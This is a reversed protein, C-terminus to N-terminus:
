LSSLTTSGCDDISSWKVWSSLGLPQLKKLRSSPCSQFSKVATGLCRGPPWWPPPFLSKIEQKGVVSLLHLNLVSFNNQHMFFSKWWSFQVLVTLFPSLVFHVTLGQLNELGVQSCIQAVQDSCVKSPPSQVVARKLDRGFQIIRHNDPPSVKHLLHFLQTRNEANFFFYILVVACCFVRGFVGM